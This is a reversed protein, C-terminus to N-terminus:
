EARRPVARVVAGLGGVPPSAAGNQGPSGDLPSNNVIRVLGGVSAGQDVFGPSGDLDFLTLTAPARGGLSDYTLTSFSSAKSLHVGPGSLLYGSTYGSMEITDNLWEVTSVALRFPDQGGTGRDFVFTNNAVSSSTGGTPSGDVSAPLGAHRTWVVTNGEFVAPTENLGGVITSDAVDIMNAAWVVTGVFTDDVWELSSFHNAKGSAAGSVQTTLAYSAPTGSSNSTVNDFLTGGWSGGSLPDITIQGRVAWNRILCGRSPALEFAAQGEGTVNEVTANVVGGVNLFNSGTRFGPYKEYPLSNNTASLQNVVYNVAAPRGSPSDIHLGNPETSPGFLDTEAIDSYVHHHGGSSDFILSGSWDESANNAEGRVSLDCMEFNDIPKPGAVQILNATTGDVPGNISPDYRGLPTGNLATFSGVPDAPMSILTVGIGSGEFSVDSYGQLLLTTDLTFTGRGLKLTGGGLQGLQDYDELLTPQSNGDQAALEITHNGQNCKSPNDSASAGAGLAAPSNSSGTISHSMPHTRLVTPGARGTGDGWPAVLSVVLLLTVTLALVLATTPRSSIGHMTVVRDSIRM